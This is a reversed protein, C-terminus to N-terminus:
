GKWRLHAGIGAKPLLRRVGAVSGYPLFFMFSQEFGKCSWMKAWNVEMNLTKM